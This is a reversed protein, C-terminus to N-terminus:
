EGKMGLLDDKIFYDLQRILLEVAMKADGRYWNEWEPRERGEEERLELVHLLHVRAKECLPLAAAADGGKWAAHAEALYAAASWTACLFRAANVFQFRYQALAAPAVDKELARLDKLVAAMKGAAGRMVAVFDPIAPARKAGAVMGHMAEIAVGDNLTYNDFAAFVEAPYDHLFSCGRNGVDGYPTDATQRLFADDMVPFSRWYRRLTEALRPAVSPGYEAALYDALFRDPDFAAFDWTMAANASASLGFERVNGVNLISYETDGKSVALAYNYRQKALNVGECRHPGDPCYAAHYYIGYRRGPERATRFFDDQLMQHFSLDAFVAVTRDPVKLLGNGLLRAGEAWVTQTSEFDDRGTLERILKVQLDIASQIVAAREEDTPGIAPDSHWVPKDGRGRLGLQWVVKPYKAWKAIYHRWMEEMLPRDAVMSIKRGEGPHRGAVYKEASFYSVGVTELHHQSVWMGRRAAVAVLAEESPNDVNVLTGPIILNLRLRLATEVVMELVSPDAVRHYFWFDIGRTGGSDRFESLLDEDNVFWGRFRFTKPWDSFACDAVKFDACVSPFLGSFRVFPRVGLCKEEFAYIGYVAGLEDAGRIEAVEGSVRVDYGEDHALAGSDGRGVSIRVCAAPSGTAASQGALRRLDRELDAAALRVAETVGSGFEIRAPVSGRVADFALASRVTVAAFVAATVWGRFSASKGM